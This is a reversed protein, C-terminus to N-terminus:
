GDKSFGNHALEITEFAVGGREAQLEPGNWKVPYAQYFNWRWVETGDYDLLLVSGSKRNVDGSAADRYWKWLTDSYTLGRKLKLNPYKTTKPLKHAYGNVGGERYEETETEAQLGTIESFGGVVLGDIEVLFKFNLLPDNRLLVAM